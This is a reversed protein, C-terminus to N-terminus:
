RQEAARYREVYDVYSQASVLINSREEDSLERVIRAPVGAALTGEPVEFGERVVAGAAVLAFPHVVARDLVRAGMGILTSDHITAGHLVASHGVTVNSGVILPYKKHTVHLMCLDQVNTREGIRIYNVDGRLVTNFWLSSDRGIQVDGIVRVGACLYVSPDIQPLIGEFPQITAAASSDPTGANM